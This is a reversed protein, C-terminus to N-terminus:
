ILWDDRMKGIELEEKKVDGRREQLHQFAKISLWTLLLIIFFPMTGLSIVFAIILAEQILSFDEGLLISMAGIFLACINSVLFLAITIYFARTNDKWPKKKFLLYIVTIVRIILYVIIFAVVAIIFSFMFFEDLSIEMPHM